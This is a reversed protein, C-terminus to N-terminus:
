AVLDEIAIVPVSVAPSHIAQVQIYAGGVTEVDLGGGSRGDIQFVRDFGTLEFVLSPQDQVGSLVFNDAQGGFLKYGAILAALGRSDIFPVDELNVVVRQVGQRALDAFLRSVGDACRANLPGSLDIFRFGTASGDHVVSM